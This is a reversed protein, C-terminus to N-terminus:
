QPLGNGFEAVNCGGGIEGLHVGTMQPTALREGRDFPGGTLMNPRSATAHPIRLTPAFAQAATDPSVLPM